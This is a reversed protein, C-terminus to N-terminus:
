SIFIVNSRSNLLKIGGGFFFFNQSRGQNVGVGFDDVGVLVLNM